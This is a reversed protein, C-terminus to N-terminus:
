APPVPRGQVLAKMAAGLHVPHTLTQFQRAREALWAAAPGGEALIRAGVGGVWRGQPLFAETTLGEDEGLALIRGFDVHATLDQEGVHALLEGSVRHERYARATGAHCEPRIGGEAVHGYDFTALRGRKLARAASRWWAEASPCREVVYGDPLVDAEVGAMGGTLPSEAPLRCEVFAGRECTVGLEWWRGAGRDWAFRRVPFADLLENSVIVGGIGDGVEEWGSVWAVRAGLESLTEQQVRARAPSPELIWFRVRGGVEPWFRDLADAVDRTLRGDHAGAEVWDVPGTGVVGHALGKALLFGFVSGVSVSTYFDGAKGVRRAIREYYGVGPAYLALAMFREFSIAGGRRIEERVVEAAHGQEESM